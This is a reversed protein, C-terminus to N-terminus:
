DGTACAPIPPVYQDALVGAKHQDQGSADWCSEPNEPARKLSKEIEVKLKKVQNLDNKIIQQITRMKKM